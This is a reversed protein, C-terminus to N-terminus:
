NSTNVNIFISFILLFKHFNFIYKGGLSKKQYGLVYVYYYKINSLM